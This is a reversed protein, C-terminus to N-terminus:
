TVRSDEYSKQIIQVTTFFFSETLIISIAIHRVKQNQILSFFSIEKSFYSQKIKLLYECDKFIKM